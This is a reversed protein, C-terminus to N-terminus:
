NNLLGHAVSQSSHVALGVLFEEIYCGEGLVSVGSLNLCGSV